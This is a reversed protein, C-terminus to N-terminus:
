MWACGQEWVSDPGVDTLKVKSPRTGLDAPNHETDVHYLQSLETGRRIQVARNRHFLSLRKKEATVWCLAITSDSCVIIEDVWSSLAARVMWTLNSGATLADLERKPITSDENPLLGRGILFQNSYGGEKLKFGGWTEMVLLSAADVCSILRLKANIATEPMIARHFKLGKMKEIMWFNKIWESRLEEPM